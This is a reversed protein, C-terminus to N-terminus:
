NRSFRATLRPGHRTAADTGTPRLPSADVPLLGEEKRIRNSREFPAPTKGITGPQEAHSGSDFPSRVGNSREFAARLENVTPLAHAEEPMPAGRSLKHPHNKRVENNVIWGGALARKVRYSVTGKALKLRDCLQQQTVEERDQIAEVIERAAPTLGESTVIDFTTNLLGRAAEYDDLTAVIWGEPTRERRFQHLLAIVQVFTLLQQFDRRMRVAKAPVMKALVNAFPVTVAHCGALEIWQQLAIFPATDLSATLRPMVAAAHAAMVARTQAESDSITVELLRTDFQHALSRTSTTMLSTPGPKVIHRTHWKGTTEDREVVDYRMVQDSALSRVASAAPGDEPISDAESFLVVRHTFVADDYVMARESSAKYEVVADDPILKRATDIAHNKGAGSPAIFAMNLPRRLLRSTIALYAMMPPQLDGAYGLQEFATRLAGPIDPSHLLTEATKYAIAAAEERAHSDLETWPTAAAKAQEFRETFRNPDDCWLASVDKVGFRSLDVFRVRDRISSEALRKRFAEGGADPEVVAYITAIGELHKADRDNRFNNAGAVGVAHQNNYALTFYDTEGEVLIIADAERAATLRDLGLLQVKSGTKWRFRDGGQPPKELAIRYRTAGATGDPKPYIMRVAHGGAYKVDSCGMSKLVDVPLQKAAALEALTLAPTFQDTNSDHEVPTRIGTRVRNGKREPSNTGTNSQEFPQQSSSSPTHPKDAFLDSLKLGISEVIASTDCGAHCSLLVQGDSGESISLSPDRDGNGKGHSPAPCSATWGGPTERVRQLKSLVTETPASDRISAM